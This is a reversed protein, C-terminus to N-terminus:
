GYGRDGVLVSSNNDDLGTIAPAGCTVRHVVLVPTMATGMCIGHELALFTVVLSHLGFARGAVHIHGARGGAGDVYFLYAYAIDRRPIRSSWTCSTFPTLPIIERSFAM